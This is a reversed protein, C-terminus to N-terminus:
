NSTNDSIYASLCLFILFYRLIFQSLQIPIDVSRVTPNRNGAPALSIERSWLPWVPESAWGNEELILVLPWKRPPLTNLYLITSSYRLKWM